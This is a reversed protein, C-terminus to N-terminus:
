RGGGAVRNKSTDWRTMWGFTREVV